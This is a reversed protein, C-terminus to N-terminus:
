MYLSICVIHFCRTYTVPSLGSRAALVSLLAQYAWLMHLYAYVPQILRGVANYGYACDRWIRFSAFLLLVGHLTLAFM